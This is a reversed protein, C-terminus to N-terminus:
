DAVTVEYAEGSTGVPYVSASFRGEVYLVRGGPMAQVFKRAHDDLRRWKGWGQLDSKGALRATVDACPEEWFLTDPAHGAYAYAIKCAPKGRLTFDSKGLLRSQARASTARATIAAAAAAPAPVLTGTEEMQRQSADGAPACGASALLMMAGAPALRWRWM